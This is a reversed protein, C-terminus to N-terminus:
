LIIKPKNKSQTNEHVITNKM